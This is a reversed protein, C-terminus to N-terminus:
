LKKATFLILALLALAKLNVQSKLSSVQSMQENQNLFRMAPYDLPTYVGEGYPGATSFQVSSTPSVASGPSGPAYGSPAAPTSILSFTGSSVGPAANPAGIISWGGSSSGGGWGSGGGGSILSWGSFMEFREVSYLM